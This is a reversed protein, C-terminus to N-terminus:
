HFELFILLRRIKYTKLVDFALPLQRFRLLVLGDKECSYFEGMNEGLVEM